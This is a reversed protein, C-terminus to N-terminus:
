AHQCAKMILANGRGSPAKLRTPFFNTQPRASIIVDCQPPILNKLFTILVDNTVRRGHDWLVKEFTNIMAIHMVSRSYSIIDLRLTFKKCRVAFIPVNLSRIKSSSFEKKYYIFTVDNCITFCSISFFCVSIRLTYGPSLHKWSPTLCIGTSLIGPIRLYVKIMRLFCNTITLPLPSLAPDTTALLTLPPRYKITVCSFDKLAGGGGGQPSLENNTGQTSLHVLVLKSLLLNEADSSTIQTTINVLRM